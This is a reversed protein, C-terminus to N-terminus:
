LDDDDDGAGTAAPDAAPFVFGPPLAPGATTDDGGDGADDFDLDSLSISDSDSVDDGGKDEPEGGSVGLKKQTFLAEADPIAAPDAAEPAPDTATDEPKHALLQKLAVGAEVQSISGLNNLLTAADAFWGRERVSFNAAARSVASGGKARGASGLLAAADEAGIAYTALAKLLISSVVNYFIVFQWVFDPAGRASVHWDRQPTVQLAIATRCADRLKAAEPTAAATWAPTETRELIGYVAFFNDRFYFQPTKFIDIYQRNEHQRRLDSFGLTTWNATLLVDNISAMARTMYSVLTAADTAANGDSASGSAGGGHGGRVSAQGLRVSRRQTSQQSSQQSHQRTRPRQRRAGGGVDFSEEPQEAVFDTPVDAPFPDPMEVDKDRVVMAQIYAKYAPTLRDTNSLLELVRVEAEPKTLKRTEGRAISNFAMRAKTVASKINDVDPKGDDGVASKKVAAGLNLNASFVAKNLTKSLGPGIAADIERAKKDAAAKREAAAEAAAAAQAAALKEEAKTLVRAAGQQVDARRQKEKKKQAEERENLDSAEKAIFERLSMEPLPPSPTKKSRRYENAKPLNAVYEAYKGRFQIIQERSLKFDRLFTALERLRLDLIRALFEPYKDAKMDKIHADCQADSPRALREICMADSVELSSATKAAQKAEEAEDAAGAKVLKARLKTVEAACRGLKARIDALDDTNASSSPPPPLQARVTVPLKYELAGYYLLFRRVTPGLVESVESWAQAAGRFEARTAAQFAAISADTDSSLGDLAQWTPESRQVVKRCLNLLSNCAATIESRVFAPYGHWDMALKPTTARAVRKVSEALSDKPTSAAGAGAGAVTTSGVVGTETATAAAAFEGDDDERLLAADPVWAGGALPVDTEARRKRSRM